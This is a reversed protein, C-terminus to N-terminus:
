LTRTSKRDAVLDEIVGRMQQQQHLDFRGKLLLATQQATELVHIEM